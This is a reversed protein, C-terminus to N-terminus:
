EKPTAGEAEAGDIWRTRTVGSKEIAVVAFPSTLVQINMSGSPPATVPADVVLTDGERELRKVAIAYGGTPRRGAVIFLATERSFDIPPPDGAGVIASWLSQYADPTAALTLQRTGAAGPSGGSALTRHKLSVPESPTQASNCGVFLILLVSSFRM